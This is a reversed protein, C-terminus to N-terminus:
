GVQEVKAAKLTSKILELSWKEKNEKSGYTQIIKYINRTMMIYNYYWEEIDTNPSEIKSYPVGRLLGYAILHVRIAQSTDYCKFAHGNLGANEQVSGIRRNEKNTIQEASMKKIKAKIIILGQKHESVTSAITELEELNM